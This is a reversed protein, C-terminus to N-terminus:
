KTYKTLEQSSTLKGKKNYVELKVLGVEPSIWQKLTNETNTMMKMQQDSTILFCEYTGAPVTITEKKEVKRNTINLTAKISVPGSTQMTMSADPLTMGPQINLPIVVEEGEFEFQMDKLNTRTEEDLINEINMIFKGDKCVASSTGETQLEGKEDLIRTEISYETGAATQDVSSVKHEAIMSVKGKKNYTTMESTAGEELPYMGMCNEQASVTGTALLNLLGTLLITMLYVGAMRGAPLGRKNQIDAQRISNKNSM